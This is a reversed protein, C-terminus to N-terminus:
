KEKALLIMEQICKRGIHQNQYKKSIVIALENDNYISIDGVLEGGYQIYYCEGNRTLYNYMEVLKEISYPYDINDVQKCVQLDQYWEFTVDYNNFYPILKLNDNIIREKM